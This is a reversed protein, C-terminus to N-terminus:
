PLQLRDVADMSLFLKFDLEPDRKLEGVVDRIAEPRVVWWDGGTRDTYRQETAHPYKAAVKDYALQSM